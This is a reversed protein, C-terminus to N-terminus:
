HLPIYVNARIDIARRDRQPFQGGIRGIGAGGVVRYGIRRRRAARHVGAVRTLHLNVAVMPRYKRWPTAARARRRLQEFAATARRIGHKVITLLNGATTNRELVLLALSRLGR